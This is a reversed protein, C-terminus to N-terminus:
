GARLPQLCVAAKLYLFAIQDNVHGDADIIQM